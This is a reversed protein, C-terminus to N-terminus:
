SYRFHHDFPSCIFTINSNISSNLFHLLLATVSFMVFSFIIGSNQYARKYEINKELSAFRAVGQTVELAVVLQIFNVTILILDFVGYEEISLYSTYLPLLLLLLGRNLAEAITYVITDVAFKKFIM